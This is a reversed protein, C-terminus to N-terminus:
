KKQQQGLLTDYQSDLKAYRKELNKWQIHLYGVLFMLVFVVAALIRTVTKQSLYPLQQEQQNNM